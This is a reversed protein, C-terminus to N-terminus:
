KQPPLCMVRDNSVNTVSLDVVASVAQALMAAGSPLDDLLADAGLTLAEGGHEAGSEPRPDENLGSPAGVRRIGEHAPSCGEGKVLAFVLSVSGRSIPGV